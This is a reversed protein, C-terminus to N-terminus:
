VAVFSLMGRLAAPFDPPYEHSVDPRIEVQVENGNARLMEALKKVKEFSYHEKEGLFIYFRAHAPLNSLDLTDLEPLFPAVLIYGRAPIENALALLLALGGGMSFGGIFVQDENIGREKLTAYHANVESISIESDNWVYQDAGAIQSSQPVAVLWGDDVVSTWQATAKEANSYNGHLAILAPLPGDGSAYINLEPKTLARAAEYREISIARLRQYESDECLPKLDQDEYSLADSTYWYGDDIAERFIEIARDKNIHAYLNILWFFITDRRHPFTALNTELKAGAQQYKKAQYLTDVDTMLEFFTSYTM